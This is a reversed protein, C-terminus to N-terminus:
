FYENMNLFLPLPFIGEGALSIYERIALMTGEDSLWSAAKVHRGQKPVPPKGYRIYVVEQQLIRNRVPTGWGGANAVLLALETRTKRKTIPTIPIRQLEATQWEKEAKLQLKIFSYLQINWNLQLGTACMGQNKGSLKITTRLRRLANSLIEEKLVTTQHSLRPWESYAKKRLEQGDAHVAPDQLSSPPASSDMARLIAQQAVQEKVETQKKTSYWRRFREKGILPVPKEYGSRIQV